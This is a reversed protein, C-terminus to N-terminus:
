GAEYSSSATWRAFLARWSFRCLVVLGLVVAAGAVVDIFYHGGMNPTAAIMLLNLVLFAPFLLKVGRSAYILIVALATHFSPFSILGKVDALAIQSMQGARLADFDALVSADDADVRAVVDFYVWANAAPMIWAIPIIVVLSMVFLWVFERMREFRGTASLLILLVAVQAMCSNYALALVRKVAPHTEVWDFYTLWNLHLAADIAAFQRDALPFNSTVTLYSLVAGVATFAILQACAVALEAIRRDPRVKIYLFALLAVACFVIAKVPDLTVSMGAARLWVLDIVAIIAIVLWLARTEIVQNTM